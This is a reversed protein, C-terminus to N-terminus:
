DTLPFMMNPVDRFSHLHYLPTKNTGQRALLKGGTQKLQLVIGVAGKLSTPSAKLKGLLKIGLSIKYVQCRRNRSPSHSINHCLALLENWTEVDTIISIPDSLFNCM